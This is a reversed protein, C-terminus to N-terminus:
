QAVQARGMLDSDDKVTTSPVKEAIEKFAGPYFHRQHFRFWILGQLWIM